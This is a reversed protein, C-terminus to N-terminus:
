SPKARRTNKGRSSKAKPAGEMARNAPSEDVSREVPAPGSAVPQPSAPETPRRMLKHEQGDLSEGVPVTQGPLVMRGARCLFAYGPRVVRTLRDSAVHLPKGSYAGTEPKRM